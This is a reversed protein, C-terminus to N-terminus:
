EDKDSLFKKPTYKKNELKSIYYAEQITELVAKKDEDSLDGGAFLGIVGNVIEEADKKGSSGFDEGAKMIFEEEDSLLYTTSVDFVESLKEYISRYRPRIDKTEYNTITRLSVNLIDALEQQTMNKGERLTRIKESFKM